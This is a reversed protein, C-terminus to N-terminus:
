GELFAKLKGGRVEIYLRIDKGIKNGPIIVTKQQGKAPGSTVEVDIKSVLWHKPFEFRGSDGSFSLQRPLPYTTLKIGYILPVKRVYIYFPQMSAVSMVGLFAVLLKKKM